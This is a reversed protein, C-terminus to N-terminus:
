SGMTLSFYFYILISIYHLVIVILMAKRLSIRATVSVASIILLLGYVNLIIYLIVIILLFNKFLSLIVPLSNIILFAPITRSALELFGVYRQFVKRTVVNLILLSGLWSLVASVISFFRSINLPAVILFMEVYNPYLIWTICSFLYTILLIIFAKTGEIRELFRRPTLISHPFKEQPEIYLSEMLELAKYGLESLRYLKNEDQYILGKLLRLHHYLVGPKPELKALEKYSVAGKNAILRIIERRTPHGLAKFIDEVGKNM